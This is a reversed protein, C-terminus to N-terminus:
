NNFIKITSGLYTLSGFLDMVEAISVNAFSVAQGQDLENRLEM